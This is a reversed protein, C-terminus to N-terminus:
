ESKVGGSVIQQSVNVAVSDKIEAQIGVARSSYEPQLKSIIPNTIAELIISLQAGSFFPAATIVANVEKIHTHKKRAEHKEKAFDKIQDWWAKSFEIDTVKQTSVFSPLDRVGEKTHALVLEPIKRAYAFGRELGCYASVVLEQNAVVIIGDSKELEELLKVQWIEGGRLSKHDIFCNVGDESLGRELETIFENFATVQEVDKEPHAHCIFVYPMDM